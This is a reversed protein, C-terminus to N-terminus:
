QGMLSAPAFDKARTADPFLGAESLRFASDIGHDFSDFYPNLLGFANL